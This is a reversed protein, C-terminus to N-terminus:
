IEDLSALAKQIKKQFDLSYRDMQDVLVIELEEKIAPYRRSFDVLSLMSFRKTSISIKPDVLWKFLQDVVAGELEEAVGGLYIFKAISRDFNKINIRARQDFLAKAIHRAYAPSLSAIDGLLWSFRVATPGEVQLLDLFSTIPYGSAVLHNAWAAREESTSHALRETLEKKIAAEENKM